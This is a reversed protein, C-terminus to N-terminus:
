SDKGFTEVFITILLFECNMNKHLVWFADTLTKRMFFILFRQWLFTIAYKKYSLRLFSKFTAAKTINEVEM